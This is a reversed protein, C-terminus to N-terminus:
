SGKRQWPLGGRIWLYFFLAGTVFAEVLVVSYAMGLTGFRPALLLVLVLNGLGALFIVTNFPYDLGQSLMWQVGLFNSLAILPLLLALIRMLPIAGEYGPGLLVQVAVPAFAYVALGGLFGLLLMALFVQRGLSARVEPAKGLHAFRPFFARNVPEVFGLLAKTLREAGAWLAVGQPPVFLGLLFTNGTTYLSVALRFFFLSWGEKLAEGVGKPTALPPGVWRSALALAVGGTLLSALGQLFLVKPADAPSRVWLLVLFLAVGKAAVELLALSRLRELGQFLFFPPLNLVSGWFLASLLLAGEGALPGLLPRFLLTLLSALVALLLRALLVNGLLARLAQRDERFRAATRTASLNFGYEVFLAVWAGYAQAMALLGFAEPGLFRALYPLTLLSFLYNAAQVGYLAFLDGLTSSQLLRSLM